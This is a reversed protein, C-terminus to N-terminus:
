DLSNQWEMEEQESREAHEIAILIKAKLETIRDGRVQLKGRLSDVDIPILPKSIHVFPQHAKHPRSLLEERTFGNEDAIDQLHRYVARSSLDYLEAIESVTRGEQWLRVYNNKMKLTREYKM